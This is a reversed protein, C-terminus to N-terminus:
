SSPLATAPNVFRVKGRHLTCACYRRADSGWRGKAQRRVSCQFRVDGQYVIEQRQALRKEGNNWQAAVEDDEQHGHRDRAQEPQPSPPAADANM